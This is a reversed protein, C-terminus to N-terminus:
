VMNLDPTLALALISLLYLSPPMLSAVARVSTVMTQIIFSHSCDWAQDDILDLLICWLFNVSDSPDLYVM